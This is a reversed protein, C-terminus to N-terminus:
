PAITTPASSQKRLRRVLLFLLYMVLAVPALIMLLGVGGVLTPVMIALVVLVPMVIVLVMAVVLVGIVVAFWHGAQNFAPMVFRENDITIVTGPPLGETLLWAVFLGLAAAVVLTAWFIFWATAREWPKM